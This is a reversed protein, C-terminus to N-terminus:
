GGVKVWTLQTPKRLPLPSSTKQCILVRQGQALCVLEGLLPGPTALTEPDAEMKGRENFFQHPNSLAGSFVPCPRSAKLGAM